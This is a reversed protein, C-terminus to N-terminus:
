LPACEIRLTWATGTTGECNPIVQVRVSTTGSPGNVTPTVNAGICGSDYISSGNASIILRDKVTFSEFDVYIDRASTFDGAVDFTEDYGADGGSTNLTLGCLASSIDLDITQSATGCCNEAEIELTGHFVATPTGTIEGTSSNLSLGTPLSGCSYSVTATPSNTLTIQYSFAAGVTGTAAAASITPAVCTCPGTACEECTTWCPGKLRPM